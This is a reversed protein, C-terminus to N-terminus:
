IRARARALLPDRPSARAHHRAPSERPFGMPDFYYDISAWADRLNTSAATGACNALFVGQSGVEDRFSARCRTSRDRFRARRSCRTSFVFLTRDGLDISQGGDQGFLVWV